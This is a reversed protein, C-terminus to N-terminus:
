DWCKSGLKIIVQNHDNLCYVIGCYVYKIGDELSFFQKNMLDSTNEEIM